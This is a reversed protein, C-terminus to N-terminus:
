GEMAPHRGFREHNAKMECLADESFCQASTETDGSNEAAVFTAIPTPLDVDM